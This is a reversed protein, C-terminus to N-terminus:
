FFLSKLKPDSKVIQLAKPDSCDYETHGFRNDLRGVSEIEPTFVVDLGGPKEKYLIGVSQGAKYKPNLFSANRILVDFFLKENNPIKEYQEINYRNQEERSICVLVQLLAFWVFKRTEERAHDGPFHGAEFLVTPTGMSQFTDGICNLNFSDDYRGIRSGLIPQLALQMAVILQMSIERSPTLSINKDTAPALFSITATNSTRGASYINRQDHLNLCYDPKFEDYISCIVLTEPQTRKQADRNLDIGNANERTYAQAGDPNLIPIIKITTKRLIEDALESEVLLSNILDLVAKTTTSEDGHMQSWILIKIPGQGLTIGYIPRSEVSLGLYEPSFNNQKIEFYNEIHALHIYRGSVSTEQISNYEIGFITM